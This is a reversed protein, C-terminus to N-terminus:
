EYGPSRRGADRAQPTLKIVAFHAGFPDEAVAFRGFATDQPAMTIEGGAQEIEKATADADDVAFYVMWHAPIEAPFGPPLQTGGCVTEGDIRWVTYDFRTGDGIQEQEYGFLARYFRNATAGERTNVEAWCIAGPDGYLEAGTMGGPQWAGFAAGTQDIAILLHGNGPIEMPGRVVQGGYRGVRRATEVVDATALYVTWNPPTPPADPPPPSIAAVRRGDKLCLTYNGFDPGTDVFTWGFVTGYFIKAAGLDPTTADAWCPFGDPYSTRTPM